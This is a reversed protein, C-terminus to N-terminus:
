AYNIDGLFQVLEQCYTCQYVNMGGGYGGCTLSPNGSCEDDCADEAPVGNFYNGCSCTMGM